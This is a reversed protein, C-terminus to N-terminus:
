ATQMKEKELEQRAVLVDANAKMIIIGKKDMKKILRVVEAIDRKEAPSFM